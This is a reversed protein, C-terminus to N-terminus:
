LSAHSGFSAESGKYQDHGQLFSFLVGCILTRTYFWILKRRLRTSPLFIQNSNNILARMSSTHRHNKSFFIDKSSNWHKEATAPWIGLAISSIPGQLSATRGNPCRASRTIRYRSRLFSIAKIEKKRDVFIVYTGSM